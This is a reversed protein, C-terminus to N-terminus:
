PQADTTPEQTRPSAKALAEGLRLEGRAIAGNVKMVSLLQLLSPLIVGLAVGAVIGEIALTRTLPTVGFQQLLTVAGVGALLGGLIGAVTFRPLWSVRRLRLRKSALSGGGEPMAMAAGTFLLAPLILISCPIRGFFPGFFLDATEIWAQEESLPEPAPASGVKELEDVIWEDVKRSGRAGNRASAVSSGAIGGVGVVTAAAAVGGAVTTLPNRKVNILAAGSCTSGDSLTASGTVTYLGAGLWAYDSVNVTESWQTEGNDSQSSVNRSVGAIELGVSHSNFGQPSTFEVLVTENDDVDIADGTRTSSISSVDVGKFTASCNGDVEAWAYPVAPALLIIVWLFSALYVLRRALCGM